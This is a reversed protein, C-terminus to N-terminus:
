ATFQQFISVPGSSTMLLTRFDDALASWEKTKAREFIVDFPKRYSPFLSTASVSCNSLVMRLLKAQEAPKQTVYLFYAHMVDDLVMLRFEPTKQAERKRLAFFYCLGLTDLHSESFYRLPHAEEGYFSTEMEVSKQTALRVSLKSTAIGESPHIREYFENAKTSVEVLVAQITEKRADVAHQYLRNIM